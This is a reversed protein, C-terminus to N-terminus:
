IRVSRPLLIFCGRVIAPNADIQALDGQAVILNYTRLAGQDFLYAAEDTPEPIVGGPDAGDPHTAPPGVADSAADGLACSSGTPCVAADESCALAAVAALVLGFFLFDRRRPLRGERLVPRM